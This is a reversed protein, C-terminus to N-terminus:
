LTTGAAVTRVARRAASFACASGDPTLADCGASPGDPQRVGLRVLCGRREASPKTNCQWTAVALQTQAQRRQDGHQVAQTVTHHFVLLLGFSAVGLLASQIAPRRLPEQLRRLADM